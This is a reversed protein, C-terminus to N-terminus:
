QSPLDAVSLAYDAGSEYTYEFGAVFITNKETAVPDTMRYAFEFIIEGHEGSELDGTLPCEFIKNKSKPDQTAECRSVRSQTSQGKFSFSSATIEPPKSFEINETPIILRLKSGAKVKGVGDNKIYATGTIPEDTSLPQTGVGIGVSVPGGSYVPAIQQPTVQNKRLKEFYTTNKLVTVPLTANAFYTFNYDFGIRVNWGYHQYRKMVRQAQGNCAKSCAASGCNLSGDANKCEPVDIQCFSKVVGTNTKCYESFRDSECKCSAPTTGASTARMLGCASSSDCSVYNSVIHGTRPDICECSNIGRFQRSNSDSDVDTIGAVTQDSWKKNTSKEACRFKLFKKEGSQTPTTWTCGKKDADMSGDFCSDFTCADNKMELMAATPNNISAKIPDFIIIDKMRLKVNSAVFDGGNQLNITGILPQQPNIKQLEGIIQFETFELASTSGASIPPPNIIGECVGAAGGAQITCFAYNVQRSATDLSKGVPAFTTTGFGYVVNWYDGFIAKGVTGTFQFSFAMIAFAIMIVGIYPRGERGSMYGIFGSVIWVALLVIQLGGKLWGVIPWGGAFLFTLFLGNGFNEMNDGTITDRVGSLIKVKVVEGGEEEKQTKPATALFALTIFFIPAADPLAKGVYLTSIGIFIAAVGIGSVVWVLWKKPMSYSTLGVLIAAIIIGFIIGLLAPDFINIGPSLFVLLTFAILFGVLMRFWAESSKFPEDKRYSTPMSFYVIFLFVLSALLNPFKGISLEMLIFMIAFIKLFSKTYLLGLHEGTLELRKSLPM